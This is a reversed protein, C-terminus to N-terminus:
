GKQPFNCIKGAAMEMKLLTLYAAEFAFSEIQKELKEMQEPMLGGLCERINPLLDVAQLNGEDLHGALAKLLPVLAAGDFESTTRPPAPLRQLQALGGMIRDFQKQFTTLLDRRMEGRNLSTELKKAAEFLATMSLNGAVGKIAHVMHTANDTKGESIAIEIYNSTHPHECYFELLLKRYLAQNQQLRALGTNLDIGDIGEPLAPSEATLQTPLIDDTPKIAHTDTQPLWEALVHYLVAVNIPKAIYNNMGAAIRRERHASTTNATMAIIPLKQLPHKHRIIQAAEYGDMVPMDIDMLVLDFHSTEIREIAEQGNAATSITLGAKQLIEQAIQQNILNDEVLLLHGYLSRKEQAAQYFPLPTQPPLFSEDLAAMIKNLLMSRTFPKFLLGDLENNDVHSFLNESDSVNLMLLSSIKPLYPDARIRRITEIGDMRPMKWDILLLDYSEGQEVLARTLEKIAHAGSDVTKVALNFRTLMAHLTDRSTLNDDAVLIRRQYLDINNCKSQEPIKASKGFCLTFFFESGQGHKSRVDIEGGMLEVLHKSIALGLGTGGFRRTTSSDAQSFPKFLLDLQEDSMGIGTDRVTFRLEAETATEQLVELLVVVEGSDTFKLANSILNTLIQSIRLADGVLNQPATPPCVLIFDVNKGKAGSPFLNLTNTLVTDLNFDAQEIDIKGAEIKSFDLIENIIRMLNESSSNIMDLYNRQIKTLQTQALLYSIGIVANMPTRIEHSMNALFDSKARNALEAAEKALCLEATREDVERELYEQQGRLTNDRSRIEELMFNFNGILKDIEKYGSRTQLTAHLRNKSVLDAAATLAIIPRTISRGLYIGLLIAVAMSSLSLAIAIILNKGLQIWTDHIDAYLVIRGITEDDLEISHEVQLHVPLITEFTLAMIKQLTGSNTSASYRAFLADKSDYILAATIEPKAQLAGLTIEATEHDGFLLAAESNHSIVMALTALQNNTDQYIKLAVASIFVSATLIIALGTTLLLIMSLKQALTRHPVPSRNAAEPASIM